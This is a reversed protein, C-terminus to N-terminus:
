YGLNKLIKEVIIYISNAAEKRGEIYSNEHGSRMEKEKVIVLTDMEDEIQEKIDSRFKNDIKFKAQSNKM